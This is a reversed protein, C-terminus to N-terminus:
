GAYRHEECRLTDISRNFIYCALYATERLARKTGKHGARGGPNRKRSKKPRQAQPKKGPGDSSPPKSSNSSDKTLLAIKRELEAVRAQLIEVAESLQFILELAAEPNGYALTRAEERTM